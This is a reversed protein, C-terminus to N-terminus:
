LEHNSCTYDLDLTRKFILLCTCTVIFAKFILIYIVIFALLHEKHHSCRQVEPWTKRVDSGKPLAILALFM